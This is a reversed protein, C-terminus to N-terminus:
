AGRAVEEIVWYPQGHSMRRVIRGAPIDHRVQVLRTSLRLEPDILVIGDLAVEAWVGAVTRDPPALTVFHPEVPRGSWEVPEEDWRRYLDRVLQAEPELVILVDVDSAAVAERRAWSGYVAVGVLQDGFLQAARETVAAAEPLTSLGVADSRALRGACYANLSTNDRQAAARLQAHLDPDLRLVFRGSSATKRRRSM